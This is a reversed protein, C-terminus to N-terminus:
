AETVKAIEVKATIEISLEKSRELSEILEIDDLIDGRQDILKRLLSEELEKL